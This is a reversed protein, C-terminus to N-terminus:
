NIRLQILLCRRLRNQDTYTKVLTITDVTLHLGEEVKDNLQNLSPRDVHHINDLPIVSLFGQVAMMLEKVVADCDHQKQIRQVTM